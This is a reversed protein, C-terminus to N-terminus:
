DMPDTPLDTDHEYDAKRGLSDQKVRTAAKRNTGPLSPTSQHTLHGPVPGGFRLDDALM